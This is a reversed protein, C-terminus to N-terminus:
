QIEKIFHEGDWHFGDYEFEKVMDYWARSATFGITGLGRPMIITDDPSCLFPEQYELKRERSDPSILEGDKDFGFSYLLRKSNRKKTYGGTFDARFFTIGLQKCYKSILDVNETTTEDKTDRISGGASTIVVLKYSKEEEALFSKFDIVQAKKM